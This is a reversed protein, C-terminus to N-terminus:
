TDVILEAGQLRREAIRHLEEFVSDAWKYVNYESVIMRMKRMRATIEEPELRAARYMANACEDTDYPNVILADKLERSAGTFGSLILVGKEDNRSAVFEKAVLNMGDHIAGVFCFDAAQYFQHVEERSHHEM